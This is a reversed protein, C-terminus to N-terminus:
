ECSSIIQKLEQKMVERDRKVYKGNAKKRLLDIRMRGWNDELWFYFEIPAKHASFKGFMHHSVCLCIGNDVDWRVSMTSRSFLHHANLTTKRGCIACKNRHLLKVAKSWLADLTSMASPKPKRKKTKKM